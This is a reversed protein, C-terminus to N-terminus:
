NNHKGTPYSAMMEDYFHRPTYQDTPGYLFYMNPAHNTLVDHGLFFMLVVLIHLCWVLKYMCEEDIDLIEQGERYAM